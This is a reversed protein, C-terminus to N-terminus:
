VNGKKSKAYEKWLKDLNNIESQTIMKKGSPNHVYKDTVAFILKNKSDLKRSECIGELYKGMSGERGREYFEMYQSVMTQSLSIEAKIKEFKPKLENNGKDTINVNRTFGEYYREARQKRSPTRSLLIIENYKKLYELSELSTMATPTTIPDGYKERFDEDRYKPKTVDTNNTNDVVPTTVPQAQNAAAKDTEDEDPIDSARSMIYSWKVKYITADKMKKRENRYILNIGILYKIARCIFPKSVGSVNSITEISLPKRGGEKVMCEMDHNAIVNFIEKYTKNEIMMLARQYAILVKRNNNM